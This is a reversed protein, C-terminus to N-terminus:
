MNGCTKTFGGRAWFEIRSMAVGGRGEEEEGEVDLREVAGLMETTETAEM